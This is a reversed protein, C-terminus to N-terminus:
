KEMLAKQNQIELLDTEKKTILDTEKERLKRRQKEM